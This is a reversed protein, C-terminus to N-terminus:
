LIGGLKFKNLQKADVKLQRDVVKVFPFVKYLPTKMQGIIVNMDYGYIEQLPLYERYAPLKIIETVYGNDVVINYCEKNYRDEYDKLRKGLELNENTLSAIFDQAISLEKQLEKITREKLISKKQETVYKKTAYDNKM